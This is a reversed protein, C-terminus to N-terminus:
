ITGHYIKICVDRSKGFTGYNPYTYWTMIVVKPNKM